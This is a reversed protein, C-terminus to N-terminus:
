LVEFSITKRSWAGERDAVSIMVTYEGPPIKAEKVHIGKATVYDRVRDTIDISIFKEVSVKLSALDIPALQPTFKIYIEIPAPDRAGDIPKVVEVLPGSMVDDRGIDFQSGGLVPPAPAMAAEEPTIFWGVETGLATMVHGSFLCISLVSLAIMRMVPDSM